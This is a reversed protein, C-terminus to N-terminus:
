WTLEDDGDNGFGLWDEEEETLPQAGIIAAAEAWGERPNAIPKLTVNRGDVFLDIPSGAVIGTQERVGKPLIVAVSNGMKRATVQMRLM